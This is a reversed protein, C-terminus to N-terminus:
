IVEGWGEGQLLPLKRSVSGPTMLPALVSRVREGLSLSLTLTDIPASVRNLDGDVNRLLPRM